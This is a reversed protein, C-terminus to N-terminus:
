HLTPGWGLRQWVAADGKPVSSEDVKGCRRCELYTGSAGDIHHPRFDHSGVLCLLHKMM